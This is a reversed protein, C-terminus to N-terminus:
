VNETGAERRRWMPFTLRDDVTVDGSIPQKLPPDPGAAANDHRGWRVPDVFTGWGGADGLKAWCGTSDHDDVLINSVRFEPLHRSLSGDANADVEDRRLGPAHRGRVPEFRHGRFHM